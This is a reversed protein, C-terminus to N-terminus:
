DPTPWLRTMYVGLHASGLVVLTAWGVGANSAAIYVWCASMFAGFMLHTIVPWIRKMKTM